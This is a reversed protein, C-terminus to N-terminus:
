HPWRGSQLWSYYDIQQCYAWSAPKTKLWDIIHQVQEM